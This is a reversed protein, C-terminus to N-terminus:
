KIPIIQCRGIARRMAGNVLHDLSARQDAMTVLRHANPQVAVVVILARRTTMRSATTALARANRKVQSGFPPGARRRNATDLRTGRIMISHPGPDLRFIGNSPCPSDYACQPWYTTGCQNFCGSRPPSTAGVKVDFDYLELVDDGLNVITTLRICGGDPLNVDWPPDEANDLNPNAGPVCTPCGFTGEWGYHFQQWNGDVSQDINTLGRGAEQFLFVSAHLPLVRHAIFSSLTYPSLESTKADDTARGRVGINSADDPESIDEHTVGQGWAFSPACLIPLLITVSSSFKM